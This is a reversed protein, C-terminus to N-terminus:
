WPLQTQARKSITSWSTSSTHYFYEWSSLKRPPLEVSRYMGVVVAHDREYPELTLQEQPKLREAQLKKVEGAFVAEPQATSDICNAQHLLSCLSHAGYLSTIDTIRCKSRRCNSRRHYRWCCLTLTLTIIPNKTRPLILILILILTLTPTVNLILTGSSCNDGSCIDSM